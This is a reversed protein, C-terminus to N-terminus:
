SPKELRTGRGHRAMTQGVNRWVLWAEVIALRPRFVPRRRGVLQRHHRARARDSNSAVVPAPRRRKRERYGGELTAFWCLSSRRNTGWVLRLPPHPRRHASAQM